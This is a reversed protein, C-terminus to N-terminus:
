ASYYLGVTQGTEDHLPVIICNRLHERGSDRLIGLDKLQEKQGNSAKAPLSGDAFGVCFREFLERSTFGRKELYALAESSRYLHKHYYDAVTDLTPEQASSTHPLVATQSAKSSSAPKKREAPEAKSVQMAGGASHNKLYRLAEPFSLGKMKELLTFVDGSEGCGFCNYLGKERDVSLSPNKDGHWPCLGLYSKGKRELEVGFSFFLGVIDARKKLEDKELEELFGGVELAKKGALRDYAM